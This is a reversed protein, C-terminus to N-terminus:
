PDAPDALAVPALLGPGCRAEEAFNIDVLEPHAAVDGFNAKSSDHDQILHDWLHWEWVVEGTTKGTPKVEVVSDPMLYDGVLEKKRGAAIAEDRTKKDWVVMLVNGSPIKIADHHSFQKDNHFVFDWVLDGDWDFEQIRGAAGPGAGFARDAGEVMAPRFLHGDPLLRAAHMSNHESKWSHVVRGETDILYTVKQSMPNLLTYGRFAKPDNLALGLKVKAQAPPSDKTSAEGKGKEQDSGTRASPVGDQSSGADAQRAAAGTALAVLMAAMAGAVGARTGLRMMRETRLKM